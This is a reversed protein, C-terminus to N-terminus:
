SQGCAHPCNTLMKWVLVLNVPEAREPKFHEIRRTQIVNVASGPQQQYEGQQHQAPPQQKSAIASGFVNVTGHELTDIEVGTHTWQCQLQGIKAQEVDVRHHLLM